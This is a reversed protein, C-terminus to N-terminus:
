RVSQCATPLDNRIIPDGGECPRVQHKASNKPITVVVTDFDGTEDVTYTAGNPGSGGTAGITIEDAPNWTALDASVQVRVAVPQLESADSRKFTLTISNAANVIAPRVSPTDNAKPNGGLVFELVNELGDNEVDTEPLADNGALNNLGAWTTFPNGPSTSNLKLSTGDIVLEYGPVETELTPTGTIATTATALTYSAAVPTGTISVTSANLALTGTVNLLDSSAGSVEIELVGNLTTEGANLAGIGVGPAIAGLSNITALTGTGGLTSGFAVTVASTTHTGTILLTGSEVSTAGTYTNNGSLRWTGNGHMFVATLSAAAGNALNSSIEGDGDGYFRINRTNTTNTNTATGAITLKGSNSWINWNSGGGALNLPGTLTNDGDVNVLCAADGAVGQKQALQIPEAVTIGGSLELRATPPNNVVTGDIAADAASGLAQPHTVRIAGGNVNTLGGYTKASDILLTGDGTKSLAGTGSIEKDLTTDDSRNIVLLGDNAITTAAISGTDAGNGLALEGGLSIVVPGTGLGSGSANAVTIRGGTITTGGSFTSAGALVQNGTGTRVLTGSGQIAGAHSGAGTLTLTGTGLQVNGGAAGGGNLSLLTQNFSNLDLAAGAVDALTVSSAIPLRDASGALVLKGGSITVPGSFTNTGSNELTLTGSGSKTIGTLGTLSGTGTFTYNKSPTNDVTISGPTLSSTLNVTTTGPATDNFTVVDNQVFAAPSGDTWNLKGLDWDGDIAGTWTLSTISVTDIVLDITQNASNDVLHATIGSPLSGLAFDSVSGTISNYKVLTFVDNALTNQPFGTIQLTNGTGNTTLSGITINTVGPNPILEIVSSNLNLNDVPIAASGLTTGAGLTLTGGNTLNINGTGDLTSKILNGACVVSGGSINLTGTSTGNTQNALSIGGSGVTLTGSSGVTVTGNAVGTAASCIAMQLTTVDITGDNFNLVGNGNNVGTASANSSRGLTLANLKMDVAHDNLSLTGSTTGGSGGSNNRWGAVITCRDADTGGTGRLKFDGNSNVFNLTAIGRQTGVNLTNANIVNTGAGLSLAGSVSSSGSTTLLNITAATISNTAAALKISAGSRNGLGMAITGASNNYTFNALGSLDLITGQQATTADGNGVNMPTGDVVLSGDGTISAKTVLTNAGTAGTTQGGVTLLGSVTLTTAAPIQTVQFNAATKNSYSLAAITSTADVINNVTTANVVADAEGFIATDALGPSGSDWNGATSWDDGGAGTWTTIAATASQILFFGLILPSGFYRFQAPISHRNTRLSQTKRKM